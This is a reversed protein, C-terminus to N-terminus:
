YAGEGALVVWFTRVLIVLDMWVSWNRVYHSDLWVRDQYNLDSRGSVQWLGTLGPSVQYYLDIADGYRAVEEAVIPRPGVLSMEGRAVNWVQPLEDMSTRRLLRGMRTLRPDRRLKHAADWERRLAPDAELSKGLIEDAKPSMTRFKWAMFPKGGKGIREQRFLVPRGSDILIALALFSALPVALLLGAALLILDLARKAVLNRKYLLNKRLELALVGQIDRPDMESGSLGFLDPVVIIRPFAKSQAEIIPILRDRPVGPMAVIATRIGHARAWSAAQSIPGVVPVGEVESSIKGADDDFLAVPLAAPPRQRRLGQLVASSTKGAGLIVAPPGTLGARKLLSRVAFRVAPVLAVSALWGGLVIPRSFQVGTQTIFTLAVAVLSALTTATVTRRLEERVTLWFGPYLGERWMVLPWVFLAPWAELYIEPGHGLPPLFTANRRILFSLALSAVVAAVDGAMLCITLIGGLRHYLRGNM